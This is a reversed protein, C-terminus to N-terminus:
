NVVKLNKPPDITDTTGSGNANVKSPDLYKEEESRIICVIGKMRYLNWTSEPPTSDWILPTFVGGTNECQNSL